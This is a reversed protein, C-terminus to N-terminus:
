RASGPEFKAADALRRRRCRWRGAPAPKRRGGVLQGCMEPMATVGPSATVAACASASVVSGLRCALPLTLMASVAAFRSCPVPACGSSQAPSCSALWTVSDASAVMSAACAACSACSPERKSLPPWVSVTCSVGVASSASRLVSPASRWGSRRSPAPALAVGQTTDSAVAACSPSSGCKVGPGAPATTASVTALMRAGVLAVITAWTGATVSLPSSLARHRLQGPM